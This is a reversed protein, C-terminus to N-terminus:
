LVGGYDQLSINQTAVGVIHSLQLLSVLLIVEDNDRWKQCIAGKTLTPAEAQGPEKATRKLPNIPPNKPYGMISYVLM